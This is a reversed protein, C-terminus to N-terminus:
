NQCICYVISEKEVEQGQWMFVGDMESLKDQVLSDCIGPDISKYKAYRNSVHFVGPTTSYGSYTMFSCVEEKRCAQALLTSLGLFLVTKKLTGM